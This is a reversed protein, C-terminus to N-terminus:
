VSEKLMLNKFKEIVLDENITNLCAPHKGNKISPCKFKEEHHFFCPQHECVKDEADVWDANKYYKMRLWGKFSGYIGLVPKNLAVGIHTFASDIAIVGDSKSMIAIGHNINVCDKCRSIVKNEDLKYKDRFHLYYSHLDPRDLFIVKKGLDNIRKIIRAWKEEPMMRIPSSARMQVVVFNEPLNYKFKEMIKKNPYLEPKYYDDTFDIDFGAVKSFLDYVNMKQAEICREVAGEFTLHYHNDYLFKASFPVPLVNTILDKPFDAYINVFRPYSATTIQCTPYLRKIHKIIGQLFILDGFGGGRWILLKKYELEQGRYRRFLTKFTHRYPKLVSRRNDSTRKTSMFTSLPMVITTGKKLDLPQAGTGMKINHKVQATVMLPTDNILEDITDVKKLKSVDIGLGKLMNQPPKNTNKM